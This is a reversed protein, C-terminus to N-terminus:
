SPQFYLIHHEFGGKFAVELKSQVYNFRAFSLRFQLIKRVTYLLMYFLM